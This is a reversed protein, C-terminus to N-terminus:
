FFYGCTLSLGDRRVVTGITEKTYHYRLGIALHQKGVLNWDAGLSLYAGYNEKILPDEHYERTYVFTETVQEDVHKFDADLNFSLLIGLAATPRIKGKPYKYQMGFMGKMTKLHVHLDMYTATNSFRTDEKYGYFYSENYEAQFLFSLKENLRPLAIILQMGMIFDLSRTYEYEDYNPFYKFQLGSSSVGIVPGAGIRVAPPKKEYIICQQEDECVFDHYESTLNILSKHRFEAHELKKQLEPADSFASKLQGVYLMSKRSYTKGDREFLIDENTLESLEGLINEIFYHDGADSRHYYLSSIGNVLYELFIPQSQGNIEMTRSVYYKGDVFRYAAIEGPMLQHIESGPGKRFSCIKGNRLDGRNDIEGFITDNHNSIYYGAQFNTQAVIAISLFNLVASLLLKPHNMFFSNRSNWHVSCSLFFIRSRKRLRM